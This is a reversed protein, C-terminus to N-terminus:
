FVAWMKPPQLDPKGRLHMHWRPSHSPLLLYTLGPCSLAPNWPVSLAHSHLPLTGPDSWPTLSGPADLGATQSGVVSLTVGAWMQWGSGRFSYWKGSNTNACLTSFLPFTWLPSVVKWLRTGEMGGGVQCAPAGNKCTLPQPESMPVRGFDGRTHPLAPSATSAGWQERLTGGQPVGEWPHSNISSSTTCSPPPPLTDFPAACPVPGLYSLHERSLGLIAKLTTDRSVEEYPVAQTESHWHWRWTESIGGAGLVAGSPRQWATGQAGSRM